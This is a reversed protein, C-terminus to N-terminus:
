NANCGHCGVLICKHYIIAHHQMKLSQMCKDMFPCHHSTIKRYRYGDFPLYALSTTLTAICVTGKLRSLIDMMIHDQPLPLHSHSSKAEKKWELLPDHIFTHLVSMLMEANSRLVTMTVKVNVCDMLNWWENILPAHIIHYYLTPHFSSSPLATHLPPLHFVECSRRFLGETGCLGLADVVNPTLRFPVREPKAILEYCSM